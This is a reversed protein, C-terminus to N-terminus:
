KTAEPQVDAVKKENDLLNPAKDRILRAYIERARGLAQGHIEDYDVGILLAKERNRDASVKERPPRSPPRTKSRAADDDPTADAGGTGAAPAEEEEEEPTTPVASPALVVRVKVNGALSISAEGPPLSLDIDGAVLEPGNPHEYFVLRVITSGEIPSFTFSDGWSGESTPHAVTDFTQDTGPYSVTARVHFPGDSGPKSLGTVEAITLTTM